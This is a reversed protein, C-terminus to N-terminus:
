AGVNTSRYHNNYLYEWFNIDNDDNNDYDNIVYYRWNYSLNEFYYAVINAANSLVKSVCEDIVQLKHNSNYLDCTVFGYCDFGKQLKMTILATAGSNYEELFYKSEKDFDLDEATKNNFICIGTQFCKIFDTNKSITYLFHGIENRTAKKWTRSDRYSTYVYPEIFLSTDNFPIANKFQKIAISVKLDIDKSRLYSEIMEQTRFTIHSLFRDYQEIMKKGYENDYELKRKALIKKLEDKPYGNKTMEDEDNNLIDIKELYNDNIETLRHSFDCLVGTLFYYNDSLNKITDSQQKMQDKMKIIALSGNDTIVFQALIAIGLLVLVVSCVVTFIYVMKDNFDSVGCLALISLVLSSISVLWTFIIKIFSLIKSMKTSM